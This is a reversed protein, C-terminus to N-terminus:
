LQLALPSLNARRFAGLCQSADQPSHIPKTPDYTATNAADEVNTFKSPRKPGFTLSPIPQTLLEIKCWKHSTAKTGCDSPHKSNGNAEQATDADSSKRGHIGYRSHPNPRDQSDLYLPGLTTRDM